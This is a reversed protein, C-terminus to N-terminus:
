TENGVEELSELMIQIEEESFGEERLVDELDKDKWVINEVQEELDEDRKEIEAIQKELEEKVDDKWVINEVQEELEEEPIKYGNKKTSDEKAFLFYGLLSGFLLNWM